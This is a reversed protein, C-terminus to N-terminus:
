HVGGGSVELKSISTAGLVGVRRIDRIFLFLSGRGVGAPAPLPLRKDNLELRLLASVCDTFQERLRSNKMPLPLPPLNTKGVAM